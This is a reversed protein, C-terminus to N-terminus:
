TEADVAPMDPPVAAHFPWRHVNEETPPEDGLLKSIRVAEALFSEGHQGPRPAKRQYLAQHVMEHMLLRYACELKRKEEKSGAKTAEEDFRFKEDIAICRSKDFFVGHAGIGQEGSLEGWDIDAVPKLEGGFYLQNIDEWM